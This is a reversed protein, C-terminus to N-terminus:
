MELCHNSGLRSSVGLSQAASAEGGRPADGSHCGGCEWTTDSLGLGIRGTRTGFAVGTVIHWKGRESRAEAFHEERLAGHGEETSGFSGGPVVM